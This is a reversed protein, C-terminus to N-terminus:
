YEDQAKVIELLEDVDYEVSAEALVHALGRRVAREKMPHGRWDDRKSSRVADDLAAALKEDGEVTDYLARKAATDM